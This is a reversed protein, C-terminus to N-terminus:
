NKLRCGLLFLILGFLLSAWAGVEFTQTIQRGSDYVAFTLAVFPSLGAVQAASREGNKVLCAIITFLCFLPMLWLLTYYGGYRALMAGSLQVILIRLWPLFFCTFLSIACAIAAYRFVPNVVVPQEESLNESTRSLTETESKQDDNMCLGKISQNAEPRSFVCIM